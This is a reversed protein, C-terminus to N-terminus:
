KAGKKKSLHQDALYEIAAAISGKKGKTLLEAQVKALKPLTATYVREQTTKNAM